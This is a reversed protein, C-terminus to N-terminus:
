VSLVFWGVSFCYVNSPYCIGCVDALPFYYGNRNCSGGVISFGGAEDDETIKFTNGLDCWEGVQRSGTDEFNHKSNESDAYHGLDRSQDCVAKWANSVTYGKEEILYKILLGLFAIREKTTGLRSGKEPLFEKAVRKWDNVSLKRVAPKMGAKFCINGEEDFCADMRQARFDSLGSKIASILANKFKRQEETEPEHKLFEDELSLTSAKAIPFYKDIYEQTGKIEEQNLGEPISFIEIKGGKISVRTINGTITLDEGVEFVTRQEMTKSM